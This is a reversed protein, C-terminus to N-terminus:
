RKVIGGLINYHACMKLTCSAPNVQMCLVLKCASQAQMHVEEQPCDTMCMLKVYRTQSPPYLLESLASVSVNDSTTRM